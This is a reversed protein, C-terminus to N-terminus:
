AEQTHIRLSGGVKWRKNVVPTKVLRATIGQKKLAHIAVEYHSKNWGWVKISRGGKIRDNFLFTGDGSITMLARIIKSSKSRTKM